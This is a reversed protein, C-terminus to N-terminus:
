EAGKARTRAATLARIEGSVFSAADLYLLDEAVEETTGLSRVPSLGALFSHNEKAHM